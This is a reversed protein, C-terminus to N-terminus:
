KYQTNRKEQLQPKSTAKNRKEDIVQLINTMNARDAIILKTDVFSQLSSLSMHECLFSAEQFVSLVLYCM